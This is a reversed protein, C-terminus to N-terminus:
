HGTSLLMEANVHRQFYTFYSTWQEAAPLFGYVTKLGSTPPPLKRRSTPLWGCIEYTMAWFVVIWMKVAQLVFRMSSYYYEKDAVHPPSAGHICVRM